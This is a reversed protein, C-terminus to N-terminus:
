HAESSMLCNKLDEGFSDKPCIKLDEFKSFYQFWQRVNENEAIDLVEFVESAFKLPSAGGATIVGHDTVAAENRYLHSGRYDPVLAKMYDLDNSTHEIQDLMGLDALFLTAGCIAAVPIHNGVCHTVLEAIARNKREEWADGGPLILMATNSTDLDSLDAKPIFDLDPWISIGGMSTKPSKDIAITKIQYADSKNIGVLAYSAEWDAMGDFVFFLVTKKRM